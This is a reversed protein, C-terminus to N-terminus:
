ENEELWINMKYKMTPGPTENDNLVRNYQAPDVQMAKAIDKQRQQFKKHAQILEKTDTIM